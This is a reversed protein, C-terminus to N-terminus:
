NIQWTEKYYKIWNKALQEQVEATTHWRYPGGPTQHQPNLEKNRRIDKENRINDGVGSINYNINSSELLDIIKDTILNDYERQITPSWFSTFYDKYVNYYYEDFLRGKDEFGEPFDIVNVVSTSIYRPKDSWKDRRLETSLDPYELYNFSYVSLLEHTLDEDYHQANLIEIRASDTFGVMLYDPNLKLAEKVQLYILFNSSGGRAFTDYEFGLEKAFIQTFHGDGLCDQRGPIDQTAAM